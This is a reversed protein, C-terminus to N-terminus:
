EHSSRLHRAVAEDYGVYAAEAFDHLPVRDVEGTRILVAAIAEGATRSVLGDEESEQAIELLTHLAAPATSEALRRVAQVRRASKGTKDLATQLLNSLQQENM